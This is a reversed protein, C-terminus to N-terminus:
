HHVSLSYGHTASHQHDFSQAITRGTKELSFNFSSRPSIPYHSSSTKETMRKGTRLYFPVGQWRWNDLYLKLAAFTETNSSANVGAEERYGPVKKGQIWGSSYQGRVAYDHVEGHKLRRIARLADVKKNRIEEAEFSLPPEMAVM